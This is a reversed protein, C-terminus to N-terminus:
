HADKEFTVDVTQGVKVEVIREVLRKDTEYYSAQVTV